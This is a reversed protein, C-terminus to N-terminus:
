CDDIGGGGNGAAANEEDDGSWGSRALRRKAIGQALRGIENVGDGAGGPRRAGALDVALIVVEERLFFEGAAYLVVFEEFVGVNVAMGVAGEARGDEIMEVLTDVNEQVDIDLAGGRDAGAGIGLDDVGQGIDEDHRGAEIFQM